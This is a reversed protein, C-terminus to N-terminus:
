GRENQPQHGPLISVRRPGQWLEAGWAQPQEGARALAAVDDDCALEIAASIHGDERLLYLRYDVM